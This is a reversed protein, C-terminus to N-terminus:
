FDDGLIVSILIMISVVMMSAGIMFIMTNEFEKGVIGIIMGFLALYITFMLQNADM